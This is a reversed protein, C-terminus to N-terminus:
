GRAPAVCSRLRPRDFAADDDFMVRNEDFTLALRAVVVVVVADCFCGCQVRVGCRGCVENVCRSQTMKQREMPTVMRLGVACSRRM